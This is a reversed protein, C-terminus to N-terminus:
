FVVENGATYWVSFVELYKGSCIFFTFYGGGKSISRFNNLQSYFLEANLPGKSGGRRGMSDFTENPHSANTSFLSLSLCLKLHNSFLIESHRLLALSCFTQTQLKCTTRLLFYSFLIHWKQLVSMYPPKFSVNILGEDNLFTGPREFSLLNYSFNLESIIQLVSVRIQPSFISYTDHICFHNIKIM